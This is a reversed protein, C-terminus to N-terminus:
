HQYRRIMRARVAKPKDYYKLIKLRYFVALTDLFSKNISALDISTNKFDMKLKIPIEMIKYGYHHALALLEIDFAYRKVLVKPFIKKLVRREFLKLGVQSDKVDMSFLIRVMLQAARSLIQRKFPYDIESQHHRKSGIIVPIKSKQYFQILNLIQDPEMELGADFFLVLNGTSHTFGHKLAYGKGHNSSYGLIKIKHSHYNTAINYTKDRKGDCIVIMETAWPLSELIKKTKEITQAIIREEQYAPILISIKM